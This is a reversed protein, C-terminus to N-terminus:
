TRRFLGFIASILTPRFARRRAAADIEDLTATLGHVADALAQLEGKVKDAAGGEAFAAAQSEMSKAASAVSEMSVETSRKVEARIEEFGEQLMQQNTRRFHALELLVDNLELRVRKAADGLELRAIHEVEIPDRRLLNFFIRLIIGAITSAVAVGFNSVIESVDSGASYQVLSVALSTLTFIFGMYYFNDGTQDDRLRLRKWFAVSAAYGLMLAVPVSTVMVPDVHLAKATIIYAVGIATFVAFVVPAGIDSQRTRPAPAAM